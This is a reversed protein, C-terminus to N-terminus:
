FAESAELNDLFHTCTVLGVQMDPTHNLVALGILAIVLVVPIAISLMLSAQESMRPQSLRGQYTNM